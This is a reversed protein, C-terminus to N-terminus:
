FLTPFASNLSVKLNPFFEKGRSEHFELITAADAGLSFYNNFVNYPLQAEGEEGKEMSPAVSELPSSPQPNSDININWRFALM